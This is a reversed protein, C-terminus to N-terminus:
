GRVPAAASDSATTAIVDTASPSAPPLAPPPAAEPMVPVGQLYLSMVQRLPGMLLDAVLDGMDAMSKVRLERTLRQVTETAGQGPIASLGVSLVATLLATGAETSLFDAIKKRMSEDDPGLHRSLVAVLPERTLKVLQSAATRWAADVADSQLAVKAQQFRTPAAKDEATLMTDRLAGGHFGAEGNGNYANKEAAAQRPDQAVSRQAERTAHATTTATAQRPTNDTAMLDTGEPPTLDAAPAAATNLPHRTDLHHAFYRVLPQLQDLFGGAADDVLEVGAAERLCTGLHAFFAPLKRLGELIVDLVEQDVEPAEGLSVRENLTTVLEREMQEPSAWALGMALLEVLLTRVFAEVEVGAQTLRMEKLAVRTVCHVLAAGHVHVPRDSEEYGSAPLNANEFAQARNQLLIALQTLDLDLGFASVTKQARNLSQESEGICHARRRQGSETGLASVVMDEDIVHVTIKKGGVEKHNLQRARFEVGPAAAFVVDANPAGKDNPLLPIEVDLIEGVSAFLSRIAAVSTGEPLHRVMVRIPKGLTDVQFLPESADRLPTESEFARRYVLRGSVGAKVPVLDPDRGERYIRVLAIDQDARVMDGVEAQWSVFQRPAIGANASTEHANPLNVEFVTQRQGEAPTPITPLPPPGFSPLVVGVQLAGQLVRGDSRVQLSPLPHEDNLTLVRGTAPEFVLLAGGELRVGDVMRENCVVRVWERIPRLYVRVAGPENPDNEWANAFLGPALNANRITKNAAGLLNGSTRHKDAWGGSFIIHPRENTLRLSVEASAQAASEPKKELYVKVVGPWDQDEEWSALHMGEPIHQGADAHAAELIRGKHKAGWGESFRLHPRRSFLSVDVHVNDREPGAVVQETPKTEDGNSMGGTTVPASADPEDGCKTRFYDYLKTNAEVVALPALPTREIQCLLDGTNVTEGPHRHLWHVVGNRECPIDIEGLDQTKVRCLLDGPAVRKGPQVYWLEFMMSRSTGLHPVLVNHAPDDPIKV